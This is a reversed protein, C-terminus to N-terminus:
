LSLRIASPRASDGLLPPSTSGDYGLRGSNKLVFFVCSRAAREISRQLTHPVIMDRQATRQAGSHGEQM